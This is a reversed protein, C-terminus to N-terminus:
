FAKIINVYLSSAAYVLGNLKYFYIKITKQYRNFMRINNAFNFKKLTGRFIELLISVGYTHSKKIM